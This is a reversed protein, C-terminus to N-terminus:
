SKAKAVRVMAPRLLRDGIRYGKQWVATVTGPAADSEEDQAVANHLNPDFPKGLADIAEVGHKKLAKLMLDSVMKVGALVPDDAKDHGAGAMAREMNDVAELLDEAFGSIAYQRAEQLERLQRRRANEQDALARAYKDKWEDRERAISADLAPSEEGDDTEEDSPDAPRNEDALEDNESETPKVPM